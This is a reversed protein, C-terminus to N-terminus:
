GDRARARAHLPKEGAARITDAPIKYAIALRVLRAVTSPILGGGAYRQASRPSVGLVKAAGVISIGLVALAARYEKQQM